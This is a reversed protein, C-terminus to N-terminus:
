PNTEDRIIKSIIPLPVGDTLPQFCNECSESFFAMLSKVNKSVKTDKGLIFVLISVLMKLSVLSVLGVLSVLSVLGVLSM